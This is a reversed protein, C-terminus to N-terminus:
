PRIPPKDKNSLRFTLQKVKDDLAEHRVGLDILSKETGVVREIFSRELAAHKTHWVFSAAAMAGLLLATVPWLTDVLM